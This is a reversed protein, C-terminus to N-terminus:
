EVIKMNSIQYINVKEPFKGTKKGPFNGPIHDNELKRPFIGPFIIM